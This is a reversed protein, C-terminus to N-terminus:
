LIVNFHEKYQNLKIQIEPPIPINHEIHKKILNYIGVKLKENEVLKTEIDKKKINERIRKQENVKKIYETKNKIYFEKQQQKWISIREEDNLYKKHRGRKKQIVPEM